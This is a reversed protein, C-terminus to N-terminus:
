RVAVPPQRPGEVTPHDRLAPTRQQDVQLLRVRFPIMLLPATSLSREHVRHRHDDTGTQTAPSRAWRRGTVAPRATGATSAIDM